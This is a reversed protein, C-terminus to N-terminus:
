PRRTLTRSASSARDPELLRGGDHGATIPYGSTFAHDHAMDVALMRALEDPKLGLASWTPWDSTTVAPHQM